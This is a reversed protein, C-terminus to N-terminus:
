MKKRSMIPINLAYLGTALVLCITIQIFSDMNFLVLYFFNILVQRLPEIPIFLGLIGGIIFDVLWGWWFTQISTLTHIAVALLLFFAFQRFYAVVVGNDMWGFIDIINWTVMKASYLKETTFYFAFNLIPIIASMLIYNLITGLYFDVKKGNLNIIKRFNVAPILVAALILVLLFYNGEGILGEENIHLQYKIYNQILTSSFSLATVLYAIWTTKILNVRTIAAVSKFNFKM